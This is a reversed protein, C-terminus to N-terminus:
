LPWSLNDQVSHYLHACSKACAYCCQARTMFLGFPSLEFGQALAYAHTLCHGRKKSKLGEQVEM